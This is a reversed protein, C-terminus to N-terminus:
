EERWEIELGEDSTCADRLLTLLVPDFGEEAMYDLEEANIWYDQDEPSEEELFQQLQDVQEPTLDGLVEGTDKNYLRIPMSARWAPDLGQEL